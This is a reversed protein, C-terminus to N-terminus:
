GQDDKEEGAFQRGAEFERQEVRQQHRHHHYDRKQQQGPDGILTIKGAALDQVIQQLRRHDRQGERQIFLQVLDARAPFRDDGDAKDAAAHRHDSAGGHGQQHAGCRLDGGRNQGFRHGRRNGHRYAATDAADRGDAGHAHNKDADKARYEAM